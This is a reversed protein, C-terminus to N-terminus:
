MSEEVTVALAPSTRTLAKEAGMNVPNEIPMASVLPVMMPRVPDSVDVVM